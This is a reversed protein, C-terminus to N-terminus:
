FENLEEIAEALDGIWEAANPFGQEETVICESMWLEEVLNRLLEPQEEGFALTLVKAVGKPTLANNNRTTIDFKIPTKLAMEEGRKRSLTYAADPFLL